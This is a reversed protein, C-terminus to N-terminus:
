RMEAFPDTVGPAGEFYGRLLDRAVENARRRWVPGNELMVTVVVRPDRSPAFGTFWSVTTNHESRELTGTKGAVRISGLYSHGDPATFAQLSTGSHVTVEMMRSLRWATSAEMLRPLLERQRPARWDGIAALARMRGGAGGLAVSYAIHAAGIPSLRSGQFGAAARAFELDNYPLDLQGVSAEVDFPLPHNFGFREATALLDSRMLHRTALQAYVANRSFGLAAAFHGCTAEAPPPPELHIREISRGGGSVCVRTKPHIPSHEFLAATTILKFLSAAPAPRTLVDQTPSGSRTYQQMALLRGSRVDIMLAAGALPRAETLLRTAASQYVPDLTLKAPTNDTLHGVFHEGEQHVSGLVLPAPNPRLAEANQPPHPVEASKALQPVSGLLM